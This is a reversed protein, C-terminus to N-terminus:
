QMNEIKDETENTQKQGWKKKISEMNQFIQVSVQTITFVSFNYKSSKTTAWQEILQRTICDSLKCKSKITWNQGSKKQHTHTHHQSTTPCQLTTHTVQRELVSHQSAALM